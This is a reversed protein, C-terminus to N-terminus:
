GKVAGIMVGKVFYKQMFPYMVFVPLSSLIIIGYKMSEAILANKEADANNIMIEDQFQNQLLVQRLFLQLPFKSEDKLYIMANFYENWHGVAYYVALVAMIAKSLPFVISAFFRLDGCGDLQAAELLEDPISNEFFTKAIILNWVSVATPLIMVWFNNYLGLNKLFLFRPILGGDFFMTFMFIGIWLGRLPLDKRSLAYGAMMTFSVNVFTGVGTYLITNKYGLWIKKYELIRRYGELTINKPLFWVRGRAIANPDSFSAIVIFYLPYLILLTIMLILAGNVLDFKWDPSLRNSRSKM